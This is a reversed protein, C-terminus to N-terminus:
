LPRQPVSVAPYEVPALCCISFSIAAGRSRARSSSSRAWRLSAMSPVCLFSSIPPMTAWRGWSRCRPLSVARASQCGSTRRTSASRSDVTAGSWGPRSTSSTSKRRRRTAPASTACITLGAGSLHGDPSLRMSSRPSTCSASSAQLVAVALVLLLWPSYVFLAVSLSTLTLVDQGM